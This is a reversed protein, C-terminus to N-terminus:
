SDNLWQSMYFDSGILRSQHMVYGFAVRDGHEHPLKTLVEITCTTEDIIPLRLVSSGPLYQLAGFHDFPV